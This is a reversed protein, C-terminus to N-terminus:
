QTKNIQLVAEKGPSLSTETEPRNLESDSQNEPLSPSEPLLATGPISNRVIDNWEILISEAEKKAEALTTELAKARKIIELTKKQQEEDLRLTRSKYVVPVRVRITKKEGDPLSAIFTRQVEINTPEYEQEMREEDSLEEWEKQAKEKTLLAEAARPDLTPLAPEKEPTPEEKLTLDNGPLIEEVDEPLEKPTNGVEVSTQVITEETEETQGPLPWDADVEGETPLLQDPTPQPQTIPRLRPPEQPQPTPVEGFGADQPSQDWINGVVTNGEFPTPEQIEEAPPTKIVLPRLIREYGQWAVLILLLALISLIVPRKM